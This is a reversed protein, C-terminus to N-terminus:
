KKLFENKILEKVFSFPVHRKISVVMMIRETQAIKNLISIVDQVTGDQIVFVNGNWLMTQRANVMVM